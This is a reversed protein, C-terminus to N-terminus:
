KNAGTVTAVTQHVTKMVERDVHDRIRQAAELATEEPRMASNAEYKVWTHERDIQLEHSISITIRDGESLALGEVKGVIKM